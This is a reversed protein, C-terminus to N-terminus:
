KCNYTVLIELQQNDYLEVISRISSMPNFQFLRVLDGTKEDIIECKSKYGAIIYNEGNFTEVLSVIQPM